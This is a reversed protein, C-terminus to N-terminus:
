LHLRKFFYDYIQHGINLFLKQASTCLALVLLSSIRLSLPLAQSITPLNGRLMSILNEIFM